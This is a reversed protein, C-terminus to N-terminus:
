RGGLNQNREVLAFGQNGADTINRRGFQETIGYAFYLINQIDAFSGDLKAKEKGSFFTM